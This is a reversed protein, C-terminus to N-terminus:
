GALRHSVMVLRCVVTPGLATNQQTEDVGIGVVVVGDAAALAWNEDIERRAADSGCFPVQGRKGHM